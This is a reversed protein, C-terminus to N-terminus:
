FCIYIEIYRYLSIDIDRYINYISIDRYISIYISQLHSLMIEPLLSYYLNLVNQKTAM